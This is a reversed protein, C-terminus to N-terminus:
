TKRQILKGLGWGALVPIITIAVYVFFILMGAALISSLPSAEVHSFFVLSVVGYIGGLSLGFILPVKLSAKKKSLLALIGGALVLLLFVLVDGTGFTM